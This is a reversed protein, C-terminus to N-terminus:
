ATEATLYSSSNRSRRVEYRRRKNGLDLNLKMGDANPGKHRPRLGKTGNFAHRFKTLRGCDNLSVEV